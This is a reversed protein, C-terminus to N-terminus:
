HKNGEITVERAFVFTVSSANVVELDFIVRV